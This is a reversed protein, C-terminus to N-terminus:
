FRYGYSVAFANFGTNDDNMGGNSYHAFDVQLSHRFDQGFQIGVAGKSRFQFSQGLRKSGINNESILSGGVTASLYPRWSQESRFIMWLGGSLTGGFLNDESNHHWYNVSVEALPLLMLTDNEYVSDFTRRLTIDGVSSDSDGLGAGAFVWWEGCFASCPLGLLLFFLLFSVLKFNKLRGNRM